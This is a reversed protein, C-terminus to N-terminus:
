ITLPCQLFNNRRSFFSRRLAAMQYSKSFGQDWAVWEPDLTGVARAKIVRPLLLHVSEIHLLRYLDLCPM